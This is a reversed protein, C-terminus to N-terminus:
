GFPPLKRAQAWTWVLACPPPGLSRHWSHRTDMLSIIVARTSNVYVLLAGDITGKTNHTRQTDRSMAGLNRRVRSRAALNDWHAM